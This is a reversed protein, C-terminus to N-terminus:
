LQEAALPARDRLAILGLLAAAAATAVLAAGASLPGRTAPTAALWTTAFMALHLLVLAGFFWRGLAAAFVFALPFLLLNAALSGQHIFTSQATFMLGCWLALTLAIWLLGAGLRTARVGSDAHARTRWWAFPALLLAFNWVGLAHFFFYFQDVRRAAAQSPRFQLWQAHNGGFLLRVNALKADLSNKWGAARYAASLTEWTGRGDPPVVGGLHWKLLRNGPPEYFRQYAFWPALLVAAVLLGALLARPVPWPRWFVAMVALALLSFAAGGHALCALAAFMGAAALGAASRRARNAYLTFAGLAFAAAGLKPWVYLSHLVCLNTTACLAVLTTTSRARLGAGRLFAWVAPIWLLQLWMGAAHAAAVFDLRLVRAVPWAFLIVGTQLPPRDSSLWDGLLQRPSTNTRLREAFLRPIENDVGLFDFFRAASLQDIGLSSSFLHLLGLYGLGVVLLALMPRCLDVERAIVRVERRARWVSWASMALVLITWAAGAAPHLFWAWFAAYCIAACIGAGILLTSAGGGFSTRRIWVAAALTVAALTAFVVLFAALHQIM